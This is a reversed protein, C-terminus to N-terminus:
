PPEIPPGSHLLTREGALVALVDAARAVAVARPATAEMREVARENADAVTAGHAGWLRELAAVADPNGDAPPRWDVDIASADQARIADGFMPLGVNVVAVRRLVDQDLAM